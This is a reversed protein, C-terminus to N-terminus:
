FTLRAIQSNQMSTDTASIVPQGMPVLGNQLHNLTNRATMNIRFSGESRLRSHSTSGTPELAPAWIIGPPQWRSEGATEWTRESMHRGRIESTSPTSSGVSTSWDIRGARVTTPMTRFPTLHRQFKGTIMTGAEDKRQDPCRSDVRTGDVRSANYQPM